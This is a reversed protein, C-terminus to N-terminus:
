KQRKQIITYLQEVGRTQDTMFSSMTNMIGQYDDPAFADQSSADIRNVDSIVDMFIEIPSLNQGNDMPTVLNPLVQDVVHYPDYTDDTLAKLVKITVDGAGPGAPDADPNVGISGADLVPSLDGDDLLVQLIDSMSALTGQLDQGNDNMALLVYQLFTELQRRSTEDQRLKDSMDVVSAFMPRGLVGALEDGMDKKAWTCPAGTERMPCHANVQERALQLARILTPTVTPNHFAAAKGSGDVALFEDVLQSRALKWQGQRTQADALSSNQFRTDIKHLADAFLTFVTLQSQPTGDVWAAKANGQRDVMGVQKAYDQSFLITTLKELVDAGTWVQGASPGRQVTIQSMQTAV